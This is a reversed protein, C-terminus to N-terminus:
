HEPHMAAGIFMATLFTFIYAQLFAVFLELVSLAVCSALTIGAVSYKQSTLAVGMLAALVAHGGVMNAFLRIALAFPKVMAGVIELIYMMPILPWPVHPIFNKIYHWLGQQRIGAVHIMVLALVALIGTVWINATPTGSLEIMREQRGTLWYAIQGIPIMGILNCALIFFFTTWIYGIYRDTQEKLAPRAVEERLYVCISEIFNRLGQPTLGRHRVALPVVVLLAAAAVLMMLMHNSFIIEYGAIHVTFLTHQVVHDLPSGSALIIGTV